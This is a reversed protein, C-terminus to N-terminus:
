GQGEKRTKRSRKSELLKDLQITVKRAKSRGDDPPPPLYHEAICYSLYSGFLIFVLLFFCVLLRFRFFHLHHSFRCSHNDQRKWFDLSRFSHHIIIVIFLVSSNILSYISHISTHPHYHPQYPPYHHYSSSLFVHSFIFLRFMCFHPCPAAKSKKMQM